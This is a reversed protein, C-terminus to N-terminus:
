IKNNIPVPNSPIVSEQTYKSIIPTPLVNDLKNNNFIIKKPSKVAIDSIGYQVNKSQSKIAFDVKLINDVHVFVPTLLYISAM